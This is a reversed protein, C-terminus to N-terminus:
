KRIVAGCPGLVRLLRSGGTSECGEGDIGESSRVSGHKWQREISMM